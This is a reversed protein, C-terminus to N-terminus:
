MLPLVPLPEFGAGEFHVDLVKMRKRMERGECERIRRKMKRTSKERKRMKRRRLGCLGGEKRMKAMELERMEVDIWEVIKM